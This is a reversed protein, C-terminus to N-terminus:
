FVREWEFNLIQRNQPIRGLAKHNKIRRNIKHHTDHDRQVIPEGYYSPMWELAPCDKIVYWPYGAKEVRNNFDDDFFGYGGSREGTFDEDFGGVSWFLDKHMLMTCQLYRMPYTGDKEVRIRGVRYVVEKSPNCSLIHEMKDNTFACDSDMTLVWPQSAVTFGLNLAGPTNWKLDTTIRYVSLDIGEEEVIRRRKEGIWTHVPSPACDDILHIRVNRKVRESWTRWNDFQLDFRRRDKYFPHILSLGGMEELTKDGGHDETVKNTLPNLIRM